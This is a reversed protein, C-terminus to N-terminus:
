VTGRHVPVPLAALAAFARDALAADADAFVAPLLYHHSTGEDRLARDILRRRAARM